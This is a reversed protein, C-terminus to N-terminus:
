RGENCTELASRRVVLRAGSAVAMWSLQLDLSAYEDQATGSQVFPTGAAITGVRAREGGAEGFLELEKACASRHSSHSTGIGGGMGGAEGVGVGVDNFSSAPAWALAYFGGLNIVVEVNKDDERLVSVPWDGKKLKAVPAKGRVLTLETPGSISGSRLPKRGLTASPDGDREVPNVSVQGCGLPAEVTRPEVFVASVDLVAVIKGVKGTGAWALPTRGNPFVFGSFRAPAKAYLEPADLAGTLQVGDRDVSVRGSGDQTEVGLALSIPADVLFAFAAGGPRLTLTGTWKPETLKCAAVGPDPVVVDRAPAAPSDEERRTSSQAGRGDSSSGASGMPRATSPAHDSAVRDSVPPEAERRHSPTCAGLSLCALLLISTSARM